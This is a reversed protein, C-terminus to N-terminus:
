DRPKCYICIYKQVFASRDGDEALAECAAEQLGGVEALADGVEGGGDGEPQVEPQLLLLWRIAGQLSSPPVPAARHGVDVLEGDQLLGPRGPHQLHGELLPAPLVVDAIRVHTASLFFINVILTVIARPM